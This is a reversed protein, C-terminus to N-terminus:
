RRGDTAGPVARPLAADGGGDLLALVLPTVDLQSPAARLAGRAIARIRDGTMDARAVILPIRSDQAHPSGHWSRYLNSFYFRRDIPEEEGSRALLLIDGARDGFPGNVLGDMREEFRLLDPRPLRALHDGLAVLTDGDFVEIAAGGRGDPVRVMIMDIADRLAPVGAGSRNAADFARVVPLVDEERRPARSWDCRSGEEVCSSRDALYIYAIAGQYAVTAQYDAEDEGPEPVFPRLRFGTGSLLAAPEDDGESALAHRDDNRVPTHGHDSVVVVWTSRLADAREYADLLRGLAPDIVESLYRQQEALPDVAGHTYLDVGPFYAVQLDALGHREITELVNDISETDVEAYADRTIPEDGAFGEAVVGFLDAVIEADPMTFIDAGRHVPSLSVYARVDAREFLTPVRLANGVLGDTLMALTHEHGTVSVPAPALFRLSDREFWENGPVGTRAPPEGTFVSGWAAMTTSPLIALVDSAAWAHEHVGDAGAAGGMLGALRPLKGEALARALLEQGVGDLAIVLVRPGGRAPRLEERLEKEGGQQVLEAAERLFAGKTVVLYTLGALALVGAVILVGRRRVDASAGRM